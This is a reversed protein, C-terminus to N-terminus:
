RCQNLVYRIFEVTAACRHFTKITRRFHDVLPDLGAVPHPDLKKSTATVVHGSHNPALGSQKIFRTTAGLCRLNRVFLFGVENLFHVFRVSFSSSNLVLRGRHECPTLPVASLQRCAPCSPSTDCRKWHDTPDYKIVRIKITSLPDDNSTSASVTQEAFCIRSALFPELQTRFGPIASCIAMLTEHANRSPFTPSAGLIRDLRSQTSAEASDILVTNDLRIIGSMAYIWQQDPDLIDSCLEENSIAPRSTLKPRHVHRGAELISAPCISM